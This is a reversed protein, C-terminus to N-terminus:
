WLSARKVAQQINVRKGGTVAGAAANTATWVFAGESWAIGSGEGARQTWTLGGGTDGVTMAVPDSTTGGNYCSVMAVIVSGAPPTFSATTVALGSGNFVGAAPSSGDVAPTSGGSPRIEYVAWDLESSSPGSAGVTIPTGSTVTGSYYGMAAAPCNAPVADYWFTNSTAALPASGGDLAVAFVPLSSTSAPTISGDGTTTGTGATSAGGAEVAGTLVKVTLVIGPYTSAGSATATVTMAM